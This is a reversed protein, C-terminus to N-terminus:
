SPRRDVHWRKDSRTCSRRSDPTCRVVSTAYVAIPSDAGHMVSLDMGVDNVNDLLFAAALKMDVLSLM